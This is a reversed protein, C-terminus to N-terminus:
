KFELPNGANIEHPVALTMNPLEIGPADNSKSPTPQTYDGEDFALLAYYYPINNILKETKTPDLQFDVKGDHNDDGIDYFTRNNTIKSMYPEIVESRCRWSDEFKPFDYSNVYRNNIYTYLSDYVQNLNAADTMMSDLNYVPLWADIMLRSVGDVLGTRASNKIYIIQIPYTTDSGVIKMVRKIGSSEMGTTDAPAITVTKKKFLLPNFPVLSPNLHIVGCFVSDILYSGADDSYRISVLNPDSPDRDVPRVNKDFFKCWPESVYSTDIFVITPEYKFGRPTNYYGLIRTGYGWRMVRIAFSDLKLQNDVPDRYQVPGVISLTDVFPMLDNFPNGFSSKFFPSPIKWEGVQKWGLPNEGRPHAANYKVVDNGVTDVNTVRARFLRYGMFTLGKEYSDISMESTSDWTIKVANNYGESNIVSREPPTPARFNEDYVRQAFIDKQILLQVDENTGDAEKGGATNALIIGIIVRCTDRPRLHFPGTAMMFRKDGQEGPGDKIGSSLYGYREDDSQPDVDITWNRFTKLGLQENNNFFKKDRRVFNTSDTIIEGERVSDIVVQTVSDRIYRWNYVRITAPSELFDFGLYGFGYGYEGRDFGSWQFALNLTSDENYYRVRDNGAGHSLLGSRSLDIDLVPAMYCNYLNDKSYNIIDYRLFIFDKYEGFGWSYITHEFQLRLPYGENKRKNAGGEFYSLDTDKFTAFIDEGSIFAPGKIFNDTNRQNEDDIYWGFYRDKKLTDTAYASADWIPWNPGDAKNRPTGTASIFDTSFYTRYKKIETDDAKDQSTNDVEPNIRGPVFWSNGSNPNYSLECYKKMNGTSPNPKMACFWIGGGFIYQNQSGRPWYGGGQNRQVDLGFIGYNTTYFQINSVTNQQVDFFSNPTRLMEDSKDKSSKEKTRAELNAIGALILLCIITFLFKKIIIRM